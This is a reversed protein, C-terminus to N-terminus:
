NRVTATVASRLDIVELLATQAGPIACSWVLGPELRTYVHWAANDTTNWGDDFNQPIALEGRTPRRHASGSAKWIAEAQTWQEIGIIPFGTVRALFRFAAPRFRLTEVDVGIPSASRAVIVVPGSHTASWFDDCCACETRGTETRRLACPGSVASCGSIEAARVM